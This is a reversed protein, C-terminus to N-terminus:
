NVIKKNKKCPLRTVMSAAPAPIQMPAQILNNATFREKPHTSTPCAISAEAWTRVKLKAPLTVAVQNPGLSIATAPDRAKNPSWTIVLKNSFVSLRHTAKFASCNRNFKHKSHNKHSFHQFMPITQLVPKYFTILTVANSRTCLAPVYGLPPRGVWFLQSAWRFKGPVGRERRMQMSYLSEVQWKQLPGDLFNIARTQGM